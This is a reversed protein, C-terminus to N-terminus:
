IASGFPMRFGEAQQDIQEDIGDDVVQRKLDLGAGVRDLIVAPHEVAHDAFAVPFDIVRTQRWAGHSALFCSAM